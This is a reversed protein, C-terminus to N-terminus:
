KASTFGCYLYFRSSNFLFCVNEFHCCVKRSYIKAETLTASVKSYRKAKELHPGDQYSDYHDDQDDNNTLILGKTLSALSTLM